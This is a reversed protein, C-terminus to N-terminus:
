VERIIKLAAALQNIWEQHEHIVAVSNERDDHRKIDDIELRALRIGDMLSIAITEKHKQIDTLIDKHKQIDTMTDM